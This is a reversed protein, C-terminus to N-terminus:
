PRTPRYEEKWLHCSDQAEGEVRDIQRDTWGGVWRDTRGDM